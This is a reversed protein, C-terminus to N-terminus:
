GFSRIWRPGKENRAPESPEDLCGASLTGAGILDDLTQWDRRLVIQGSEFRTLDLVNSVLDSM